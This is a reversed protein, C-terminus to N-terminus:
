NRCRKRLYRKQSDPKDSNARRWNESDVFACEKRWYQFPRTHNKQGFRYVYVSM